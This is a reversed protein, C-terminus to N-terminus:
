NQFYGIASNRSEAGRRQALENKTHDSFLHLIDPQSQGDFGLHYVTRSRKDKQPHRQLDPQRNIGAL